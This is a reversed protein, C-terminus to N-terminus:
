VAVKKRNRVIVTAFVLMLVLPAVNLVFEAPEFRRARAIEVSAGEDMLQKIIRPLEHTPVDARLPKSSNQFSAHIESFDYGLYIAVGKLEGLDLIGVFKDYTIRASATGNAEHLRWLGVCALVASIFVVIVFRWSISSSM